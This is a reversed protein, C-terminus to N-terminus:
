PTIPNYVVRFGIEESPKNDWKKSLIEDHIPKVRRSQSITVGSYLLMNCPILEIELDNLKVFVGYNNKPLVFEKWLEFIKFQEEGVHLKYDLFLLYIEVEIIESKLQDLTKGPDITSFDTFNWKRSLCFDAISKKITIINSLDGHAFFNFKM